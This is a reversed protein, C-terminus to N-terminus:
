GLFLHEIAVGLYPQSDECKCFPYHEGLFVGNPMKIFCVTHPVTAIIESGIDIWRICQFMSLPLRM